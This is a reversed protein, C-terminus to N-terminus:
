KKQGNTDTESAKKALLADATVEESIRALASELGLPTATSLELAARRLAERRILRSTFTDFAPDPTDPDAM